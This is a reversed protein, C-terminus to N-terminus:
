AATDSRGAAPVRVTVRFGGGPGAGAEVTGGVAQAREQLGTLGHGGGDFAPAGDGDDAIQLETTVPGRRVTIEARRARSHRIANTAGERVAWALM